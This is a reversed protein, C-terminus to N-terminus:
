AVGTRAKQRQTAVKPRLGCLRRFEPQIKRQEPLQDPASRQQRDGHMSETCASSPSAPRLSDPRAWRSDSGAANRPEWPARAATGALPQQKRSSPITSGFAAFGTSSSPDPAIAAEQRTQTCVTHTTRQRTPAKVPPESRPGAPWSFPVSERALRWQPHLRVRQSM